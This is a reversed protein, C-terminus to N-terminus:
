LPIRFFVRGQVRSRIRFIKTPPQFKSNPQSGVLYVFILGVFFRLSGKLFMKTDAIYELIKKLSPAGLNSM